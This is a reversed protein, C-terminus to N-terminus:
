FIFNLIDINFFFVLMLGIILFPGFPIESKITLQKRKSYLASILILFVGVIAGIWFSLMIASIGAHIGLFWGIGLALKGDGLGIWKGSSVFWLLFFPLFLIPGSLIQLITPMSLQFSAFDFFMSGLSIVAFTYVLDDPIIKHRLDYVFIVTLISFIVMFYASMLILQKPSTLLLNSFKLFIGLFVIGTFFEVLPYQFSFKSKCSRCRGIQFVFSLIPILEFWELKKECSFCGSRDLLTQGTNYRLIIVNLFSGIITGLIFYSVAIIIEISEM